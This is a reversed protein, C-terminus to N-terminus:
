GSLDGFRYFDGRILFMFYIPHSIQEYGFGKSQISGM